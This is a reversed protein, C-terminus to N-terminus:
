RGASVPPTLPPLSQAPDLHRPQVPSLPVPGLPM